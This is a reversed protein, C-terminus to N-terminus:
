ATGVTHLLRRLREVFDTATLTGAVADELWRGAAPDDPLTAFDLGGNVALFTMGAVYATRKNGDTVPHNASLALMTHAALAVLDGEGGYGAADRPRQLAGELLARDRPPPAPQGARGRVEGYIALVEGATLFVLPARPPEEGAGHPPTTM